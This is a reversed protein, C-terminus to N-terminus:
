KIGFNFKFEGFTGGASRLQCLSNYGNSNGHERSVRTIMNRIQIRVHAGKEGIWNLVFGVRGRCEFDRQEFIWLGFSVGVGENGETGEGVNM